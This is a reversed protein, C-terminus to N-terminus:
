EHSNNMKWSSAVRASITDKKKQIEERSEEQSSWSIASNIAHTATSLEDEFFKTSDSKWNFKYNNNNKDTYLDFDIGSCDLGGWSNSVGRGEVTLERYFSPGCRLSIYSIGESKLRTKFEENVAKELKEAARGPGIIDRIPFAFDAEQGDKLSALFFSAYMTFIILVAFLIAPNVDFFGNFCQSDGKRKLLYGSIRHFQSLYLALGLAACLFVLGPLPLYFFRTPVFFLSIVLGLVCAPM